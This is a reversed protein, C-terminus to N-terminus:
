RTPKSYTMRRPSAPKLDITSGNLNLNGGASINLTGPAQITVTSGSHISIVQQLQAIQQTRGTAQSQLSGVTKHTIPLM